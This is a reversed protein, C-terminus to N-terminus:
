LINEENIDIVEDVEYIEECSDTTIAILFDNLTKPEFNKLEMM